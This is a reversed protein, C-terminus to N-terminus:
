NQNKLIMDTTFVEEALLVSLTNNKKNLNAQCVILIWSSHLTIFVYSLDDLSDMKQLLVRQRIISFLMELYSVNLFGSM